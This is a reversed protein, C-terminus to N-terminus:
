SEQNSENTKIRGKKFKSKLKLFMQNTKTYWRKELIVFSKKFTNKIWGFGLIFGLFLVLSFKGFNLFFLLFIFFLCFVIYFLTLFITKTINKKFNILFFLFYFQSFIGIIVGAFVFILFCNLQNQTQFIM